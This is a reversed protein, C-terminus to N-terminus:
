TLLFPITLSELSLNSVSMGLTMIMGAFFRSFAAAAEDVSQVGPPLFPRIGEEPFIFIFPGFIAMNTFGEFLLAYYAAKQLGSMKDFLISTIM